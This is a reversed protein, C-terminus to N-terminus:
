RPFGPTPGVRVRRFFAQSTTDLRTLVDQVVQRHIAAYAPLGPAGSKSRPARRATSLRPSATLTVGGRRYAAIRQEVATNSRTRCRWVTAALMREQAATPKRKYKSANTKRPTARLRQAYANRAREDSV